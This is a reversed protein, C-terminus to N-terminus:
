WERRRAAPQRKDTSSSTAEMLRARMAWMPGLSRQRSATYLLHPTLHAHVAHRHDYMHKAITKELGAMVDELMAVHAECPDLTLSTWVVM